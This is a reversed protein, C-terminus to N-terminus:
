VCDNCFRSLWSKPRHNMWQEVDRLVHLGVSGIIIAEHWALGPWGTINAKLRGNVRHVTGRRM